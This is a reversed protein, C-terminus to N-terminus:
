DEGLLESILMGPAMDPSWDNEFASLRPLVDGYMDDIYQSVWAREASRRPTSVVVMRADDRMIYDLMQLQWPYVIPNLPIEPIEPTPM